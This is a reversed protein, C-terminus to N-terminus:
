HRSITDPDLDQSRGKLRFVPEFRFDGGDTSVLSKGADFDVTLFLKEQDEVTMKRVLKLKEGSLEAIKTTASGEASQLTVEVSDVDMRVQSYKGIPLLNFGLVKEGRGAEILDFTKPDTSVSTSPDEFLSIWGEDEGADAQQVELNSVAVVIANFGETIRSSVQIELVGSGQPVEIGEHELYDDLALNLKLRTLENKDEVAPTPDAEEGTAIPATTPAVAATDLPEAPTPSAEHACAATSFVLVLLFLTVKVAIVRM